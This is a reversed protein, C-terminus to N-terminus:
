RALPSAKTVKLRMSQMCFIDAPMLPSSRRNRPNPPWDWHPQSAPRPMLATLTSAKAATTPTPASMSSISAEPQQKPPLQGSFLYFSYLWSCRVLCLAHRRPSHITAM